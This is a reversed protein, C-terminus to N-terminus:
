VVKKKKVSKKLYLQYVYISCMHIIHLKIRKSMHMYRHNGEGCDLCHVYGEGGFTEAHGKNKNTHRNTQKTILICVHSRGDQCIKLHGIGYQGIIPM